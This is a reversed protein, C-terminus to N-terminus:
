LTKPGLLHVPKAAESRVSTPGRVSRKSRRLHKVHRVNCVWEVAMPNAMFGECISPDLGSVM